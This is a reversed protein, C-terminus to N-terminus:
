KSLSKARSQQSQKPNLNIEVTKFSSQKAQNSKSNSRLPFSERGVEENKNVRSKSLSRSGAEKDFAFSKLISTEKISQNVKQASNLTFLAPRRRNEEYFDKGRRKTFNLNNITKLDIHTTNASIDKYQSTGEDEVEFDEGFSTNMGTNKANSQEERSTM